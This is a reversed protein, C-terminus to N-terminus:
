LEVSGDKNIKIGYQKSMKELRSLIDSNKAVRPWGIQSHSMGYGLEIPLLNLSKLKRNEIEFCPIVAQLMVEQRQLGITFEKTRKKFVEYLGQEPNINFKRYFDDPLIECNELQLIFDGLSYFIPLGKYIEIPRLLHPGHGLVGDAGADICAHAFESLFEPVEEKTDGTVEHSHVSILVVDAQFRADKIATKIRNMDQENLSFTTKCKGVRFETNCFEFQDDKLPPLYGEARIIDNYSNIKTSKAIEKLSNLQEKSVYVTKKIRVPNIGPRGKIDRSQEGAEAGPSYDTTCSIIACRGNPTDIYAPKTADALNKGAGSQSINAKKINELTQNFGDYSFDMCHNNAFTTTNFGYELVDNFVEPSTQMWTGGSHTAAFCDECVTTEINFFRVDGQLIFDKIENFGDYYKPLRKQVACDGAATIKM